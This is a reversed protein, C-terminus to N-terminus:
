VVDIYFFDVAQPGASPNLNVNPIIAGSDSAKTRVSGGVFRFKFGFATGGNGTELGSLRVTGLSDAAVQSGAFSFNLASSPDGLPIATTTFTGIKYRSPSDFTGGTNFAGAPTYDVFLQSDIFRGVTVSGVNGDEVIVQSNRVNGRATLAKLGVKAATQDNSTLRFVSNSVDGSLQKNGIAALTGLFSATLNFSEIRGATVSKVGFPITWGPGSGNLQGGVKVAGLSNASLISSMDGTVTVASLTGPTTITGAAAGAKVTTKDTTTGGVTVDGNIAGFTLAKVTGDAVFDGNLEAALATFAGLAGSVRVAGLAVFPDSANAKTTLSVKSAVTPNRVLVSLQRNVPVTLDRFVVLEGGGTLKFTYQTGDPEFGVATGAPASQLRAITLGTDAPGYNTVRVANGALIFGSGVPANTFTGTLTGNFDILVVNADGALNGTSQESGLRGFNITVDGTMDVLDSTAGVDVAFDGGNFTLDGDLTLTGIAGAGGPSLNGDTLVTVNGTVTGSGAGFTAELPDEIGDGIVLEGVTIPNTGHTVAGGAVSLVSVPVIDGVPDNFVTSTGYVTLLGPGDVPENFTVTGTDARATISEGGVSVTANVIINGQDTSLHALTSSAAFTGATVTVDGTEANVFGFLDVRGAGSNLTVSRARDVNVNTLNIQGDVFQPATSDIVLNVQDFLDFEIGNITVDASTSSADPRLTLTRPSFGVNNLRDAVGTATYDIDGAEGGGSGTTILVDQGSQLAAEIADVDLIAGSANASFITTGPLSVEDVAINTNGIVDGDITLNFAPVTRDELTQVALRTRRSASNTM